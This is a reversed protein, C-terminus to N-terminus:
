CDIGEDILKATERSRIKNNTEEKEKTNPICKAFRKVTPYYKAMLFILTIMLIMDGAIQIYMITRM